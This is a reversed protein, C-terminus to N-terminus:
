RYTGDTLDRSGRSRAVSGAVASLAPGPLPGKSRGYGSVAVATSRNRAIRAMIQAGCRCRRELVGARDRLRAPRM